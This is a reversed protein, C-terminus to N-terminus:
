EWNQVMEEANAYENIKCHGYSLTEIGDELIYRKTDLPCLSTKTQRYVGIKHKKSRLTVQTSRYVKRNLLADKYMDHHLIKSVVSRKVGKAKKTNKGESTIFSYMKPCIGVFEKIAASKCEDKFLGPVGKKSIDYNPHNKPYESFDFTPKENNMKLMDEYVNETEIECLLSDTDTYLLRAKNGYREKVTNYYFNYMVYKSIDLIAQGIYIPRNLKLSVKTLHVAVLGNEFITHGKYAPNSILRNMRAVDTPNVLELRIRKKLNEMTKGFVANNMLKFFDREFASNGERVRLQINLDVFPKIIAKQSFQMVRYVGTLKMGLELYLKLAQGHVIYKTKKLLNPVLKPFEVLKSGLEAALEHQYLSYMSTPILINEPAPPYDSFHDHLDEPYELDVEYLYETNANFDTKRITELATDMDMNVWKLDAYPLKFQMCHAYLSNADWQILHKVPKSEDVQGAFENNAQSMRKGAVMAIGGRIGKEVFIHMDPDSILELRVGTMKLMAEWALGPASYFHAPDLGYNAMSMKRFKQFVDALLMVDTKLYIDHFDGFTKCGLNKWIEKGEEYEIESIGEDRLKSYFAERPPLCTEDFVSFDSVYDYPYIGKKRLLPFHAEPTYKRTILMDEDKLNSSLKELSEAMFQMSDIFVFQGISFMMYKEMNNPICYVEELNEKGLESIILHSDYGRLNHFVVPIKFKGPKLKLKLNCSNHMGAVFKGTIYDNHRVKSDKATFAQKCAECITTNDYIEKEEATMNLPKVDELFQNIEDKEQMLKKLFNQVPNAGRYIAPEKSKGDHRVIVYGYSNAEQKSIMTSNEGASIDCGIDFSELYAYVLFPLMIQKFYNKFFLYTHEKPMEVRQAKECISLCNPYHQDRLEVSSFVHLCKRCPFKAEKHKNFDYLLGSLNKIWAYHSKSTNDPDQILLLDVEIKNPGYNKSLYLNYLKKREDYAFVCVSLTINLKEFKAIDKIQMPFQINGFELIDKYPTYNSLRETNKQAPYLCSLIAWKFCLNDENQVNIICRKKLLFGPLKVYSRGELPNLKAIHLYLANVQKFSWGSGRNQYQEVETKLDASTEKFAEPIDAENSAFAVKTKLYEDRVLDESTFGAAIEIGYKLFQCSLSLSFKINRLAELRTSIFSVTTDFVHVLFDNVSYKFEDDRFAYDLVYDEFRGSQKIFEFEPEQDANMISKISRLIREEARASPQVRDKKKQEPTRKKLRKAEKNLYRKYERNIAKNSRSKVIKPDYGHQLSVIDELTDEPDVVVKKRAQQKLTRSYAKRLSNVDKFYDAPDVAERRRAARDQKKEVRDEFRTFDNMYSEPDVVAKKREERQLKKRLGFEKFVAVRQSQKEPHNKLFTRLRQNSKRIMKKTSYKRRMEAVSAAKEAARQAEEAAKKAVYREKAKLANLVKRAEKRSESLLSKLHNRYIPHKRLFAKNKKLYEAIEEGQLGLPNFNKAGFTRGVMMDITILNEEFELKEETEASETNEEPEVFEESETCEEPEVSEESETYVGSEINEEPEVSEEFGTYQTYKMCEEPFIYEEEPEIYEESDSDVGSEIDEEPEVPEESETYQIYKMCEEPFIYEEEPEVYEESDSDVGFEIDEEPEVYEESDSDLGSKMFDEPEVFEESKSYVGSRINEGPENCIVFEIDEEPEESFDIYEELKDYEKMEVNKFYYVVDAAHNFRFRNKINHNILWMNRVKKGKVEGIEFAEMESNDFYLDFLVQGEFETRDANVKLSAHMRGEIVEGTIDALDIDTWDDEGIVINEPFQAKSKASHASAKLAPYVRANANEGASKMEVYEAM